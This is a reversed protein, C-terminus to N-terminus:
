LCSPPAFHYVKGQGVFLLVDALQRAVKGLLLHGGAGLMVVLRGFVGPFHDFLRVLSPQEVADNWFRQAPDACARQFLAQHGFLQKSAVRPHACGHQSVVQPQGGDEDAAVVLLLLTEEGREQFLRDHGGKAESFAASAGVHRVQARRPPAVAVLVHDIAALHEDGIPAHTREVGDKRGGLWALAVIAGKAGKDDRAVRWPDRSALLFVLHAVAAGIGRLHDKVLRADRGVVQQALLPRPELDGHLRQVLAPRADSGAADANGARRHLSGDLVSLFPLGKALRQGSM